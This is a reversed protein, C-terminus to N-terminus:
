LYQTVSISASPRKRLEVAKEAMNRIRRLARQKISRLWLHRNVMLFATGHEKPTIPYDTANQLQELSVVALKYGSPARKDERVIGTVILSSEQTIRDAASFRAEDVDNKSMVGQIFGTGDRLQLFHIKGSSRKIYLWGKICLTQHFSVQSKSMIVMFLWIQIVYSIQGQQNEITSFM